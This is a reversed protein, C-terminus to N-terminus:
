GPKRRSHAWGLRHLECCAAIMEESIWTGDQGPRPTQACARIVGKQFIATTDSSAWRSNRLTKGLSRSSGSNRHCCCWIRPEPYHWLPSPAAHGLSLCFRYAGLLRAVSLGGGIALLGGLEPRAHSRPLPDDASLLSHYARAAFRATLGVKNACRHHCLNM